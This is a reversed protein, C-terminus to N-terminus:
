CGEPPRHAPRRPSLRFGVASQDKEIPPRHPELHDSIQSKLLRNPILRNGDMPENSM